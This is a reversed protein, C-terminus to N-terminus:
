DVIKVSHVNRSQDFHVQLGYTEPKKLPWGLDIQYQYVKGWDKEPVGLTARVEDVSEGVLSGGAVLNEAMRGKGRYDAALWAESSFEADNGLGTFYSSAVFVALFLFVGYVHKVFPSRM